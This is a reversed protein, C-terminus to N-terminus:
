RIATRVQRITELIFRAAFVFIVDGGRGRDLQGHWIRQRPPAMGKRKSRIHSAMDFINASHEKITEGVRIRHASLKFYVPAMTRPHLSTPLERRVCHRVAMCTCVLRAPHSRHTWIYDRKQGQLQCRDRDYEIGDPQRRTYSAQWQPKVRGPHAGENRRRLGNNDARVRQATRRSSIQPVTWGQWELEPM